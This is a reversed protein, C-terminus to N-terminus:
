YHLSVFAIRNDEQSLVLTLLLNKGACIRLQLTKGDHQEASPFSIRRLVALGAQPFRRGAPSKLYMALEKM